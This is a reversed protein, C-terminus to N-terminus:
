STLAIVAVILAVLGTGAGAITALSNILVWKRSWAPPNDGYMRQDRRAWSSLTIIGPKPEDVQMHVEDEGNIFTTKELLEKFYPFVARTMTLTMLDREDETM